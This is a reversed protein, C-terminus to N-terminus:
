DNGANGEVAGLLVPEFALINGLGQAAQQCCKLM